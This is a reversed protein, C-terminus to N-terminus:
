TVDSKPQAPSHAQLDGAPWKSKRLVSTLWEEVGDKLTSSAQTMM